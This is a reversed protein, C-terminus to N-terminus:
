RKNFFERQRNVKNYIRIKNKLVFSIVWQAGSMLVKRLLQRGNKMRCSM